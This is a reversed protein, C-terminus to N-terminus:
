DDRTTTFRSVQAGFPGLWRPNHARWVDLVAPLVGGKAELRHIAGAVAHHESLADARVALQRDTSVGALKWASGQKQQWSAM